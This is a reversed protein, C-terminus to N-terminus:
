VIFRNLLVIILFLFFLVAAVLVFRLSPDYAAEDLVVSSMERLKQGRQVVDGGVHKALGTARQMKGRSDAFKQTGVTGEPTGKARGPQNAASAAKASTEMTRPEENVSPPQAPEADAKGTTSQGEQIPAENLPATDVSPKHPPKSDILEGTTKLEKGCQPCFAAHDRISAGCAHCRRAIEPETM